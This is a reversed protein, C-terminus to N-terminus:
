KSIYTFKDLLTVLDVLLKVFVYIKLKVSFHLSHMIRFTFGIYVVFFVIKLMVIFGSAWPGCHEGSHVAIFAENLM